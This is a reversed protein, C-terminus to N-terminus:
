PGGDRRDRGTSCKCVREVGCVKVREGCEAVAVAEMPEAVVDGFQFGGDPPGLSYECSRTFVKWKPDCKREHTAPPDAVVLAVLLLHMM